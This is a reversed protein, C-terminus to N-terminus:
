QASFISLSPNVDIVQDSSDALMSLFNCRLWNFEGYMPINQEARTDPSGTFDSTLDVVYNELPSDFLYEEVEFGHIM